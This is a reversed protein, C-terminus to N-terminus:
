HWDRAERLAKDSAAMYQDVHFTEMADRTQELEQATQDTHLRRALVQAAGAIGLVDVVSRDLQAAGTTALALANVSNFAGVGIHRGLSDAGGPVEGVADLFARTGITRLDNEIESAVDEDTADKTELIFAKPEVPARVTDIKRNAERAAAEAARPKKDAKLIDMASKADVLAHPDVKPGPERIAKPEAKVKEATPKKPKAGEPRSAAAEEALNKDTLGREKARGEYDATFGLGKTAPSVPDIDQVTITEPDDATLPVEGLGAEARAEGDQQMRKRTGEVAEKAKLFLAKNHAAEAQAQEAPTLNQHQEVPFRTDEDKWGMADSVARLYEKRQQQKQDRVVACADAKNQTLGEAKDQAAQQRKKERHAKDKAQAGIRYDAESQVGHLRLHNLKGGAGGLVKASGDPQIKILIPTGKEAPGNPHM